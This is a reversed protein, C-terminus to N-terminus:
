GQATVDSCLSMNKWPLWCPIQLLYQSDSYILYLDAILKCPLKRYPTNTYLHKHLKLKHSRILQTWRIWVCLLNFLVSMWHSLTCCTIKQTLGKKMHCFLRDVQHQLYANNPTSPKIHRSCANNLTFTKICWIYIAQMRDFLWTSTEM